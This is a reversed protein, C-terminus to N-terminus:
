IGGGMANFRLLNYMQEHEPTRPAHEPYNMLGRHEEYPYPIMDQPFWREEIEPTLMQSYPPPGFEGYQPPPSEWPTDGSMFVGGLSNMAMNRKIERIRRLQEEEASFDRESRPIGVNLLGYGNM